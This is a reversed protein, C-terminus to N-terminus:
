KILENLELLMKKFDKGEIGHAMAGEELTEFGALVCNVCHFEYEDVLYDIVEPYVEVIEAILMDSKIIQKKKPMVM